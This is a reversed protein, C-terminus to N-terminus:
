PRSGSIWESQAPNHNDEVYYYLRRVYNELHKEGCILTEYAEDPEAPRAKEPRTSVTLATADAQTTGADTVTSSEQASSGVTGELTGSNLVLALVVCATLYLVKKGKAHRGLRVAPVLLLLAALPLYVVKGPALLM